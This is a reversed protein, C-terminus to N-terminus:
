KTMQFPEECAYREECTAKKSETPPPEVVMKESASASLGGPICVKPPAVTCDPESALEAQANATEVAALLLELDEDPINVGTPKVPDKDLSASL